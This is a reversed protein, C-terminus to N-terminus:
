VDQRQPGQADWLVSLFSPLPLGTEGVDSVQLVERCCDLRMCIAQEAHVLQTGSTEKIKLGEHIQRM